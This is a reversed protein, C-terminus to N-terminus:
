KTAPDKKPLFQTMLLTNELFRSYPVYEGHNPAMFDVQLKRFNINALLNQNWPAHGLPEGTVINRGDEPMYVDAQHLIRESPFYVLIQSDAHTNDRLHYFNVIMTPDKLAGEDDITTIKPPKAGTTKAYLDPNITHPRKFIENLFTLNSRHTIIENVGLAVATRVGGTHDSHHHSVLLQTVPKNPRLEKAKAIVAQARQGNPAEILMLHDNFEVLLSHHTTGTVFWIGKGIEKAPPSASQQGGSGGFPGGAPPTASAVSAPAALDGVDGDVVQRLIRIEERLFRDFRTTLRTPLQLGSVSQYETFRTEVARDGMTPSAVMQRVRSPLKTAGDFGLTLTANGVVLDVLQEGGESRANSLAAGPLLASRVATLPHRLYEIRRANAQPGFARTATGTEAINFAVEGDLAQVQLAGGEGQYFPYQRERRLEFRARGHALDFVRKYDRIQSVDSQLGLEDWRLGQDVEFDRGGGEIVLTKAALVKDRGGLANAGDTVIQRSMEQAYGDARLWFLGTVIVIVLALVAFLRKAIRNPM